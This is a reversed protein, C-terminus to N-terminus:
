FKPLPRRQLRQIGNDDTAVAYVAARGFGVVQVDRGATVRAVLAGRRDVVDYPPNPNAATPPRRIWLRGDPAPLLSESLFPPIIEPWEPFLSPDRPARGTRAAEREVFARQEREDLRVREFPLPSGHIRQGDPTVWDIRYPDLRAIAIWGDPFFAALEGTALPNILVSVSTPHDAPGAIKISAPRARLVAITDSRGTARAIRVLLVSDRRPMSGTTRPGVGIPRTFIVRGRTDAGLPLRAGGRIAPADPGITAAIAAGHLLLWRGNRSDPLLTSDGGLALLTSPQLYEGPGSGTRGLHAVEGKAWDAVVLTQESRDVILLRGDSLERASTVLTFEAELTANPGPLEIRRPSASQARAHAVAAVMLVLTAIPRM